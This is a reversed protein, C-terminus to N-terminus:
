LFVIEISLEKHIKRSIVHFIFSDELFNWEFYTIKGQLEYLKNIGNWENPAYKTIERDNQQTIADVNAILHWRDFIQTEPLFVKFSFMEHYAFLIILYIM